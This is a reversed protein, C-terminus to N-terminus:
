LQDFISTGFNKLFNESENKVKSFITKLCQIAVIQFAGHDIGSYLEDHLISMMDLRILNQILDNNSCHELINALTMAAEYKLVVNKRKIEGLLNSLIGKHKELIENAANPSCALNQM